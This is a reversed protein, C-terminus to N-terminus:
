LIIRNKGRLELRRERIKLAVRSHVHSLNEVSLVSVPSQPRLEEIIPEPVIPIPRYIEGKEVRGNLGHLSDYAARVKETISSDSSPSESIEGVLVSEKRDPM